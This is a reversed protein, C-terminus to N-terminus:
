QALLLLNNIHDDTLSIKDDNLDYVAGGGNKSVHIQYGCSLCCYSKDDNWFINDDFKILDSLIEFIGQEVYKHMNFQLRPKMSNRKLTTSISGDAM